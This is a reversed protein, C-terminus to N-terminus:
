VVTRSAPDTPPARSGHARTRPAAAIRDVPPPPVVCDVPHGVPPIPPPESELLALGLHEPAGRGHELPSEGPAHPRGGHHHHRPAPEHDHRHAGHARHGRELDRLARDGREQHVRAHRGHGLFRHEHAGHGRQLAEHLHVLVHLGPVGVLALAIAALCVGAGFGRGRVM